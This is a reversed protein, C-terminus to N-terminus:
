YRRTQFRGDISTARTFTMTYSIDGEGGAVIGATAGGWIPGVVPIAFVIGGSDGRGGRANTRVQGTIQDLIANPNTVTGRTLQTRAGAKAFADGQRFVTITATGLPGGGHAINNTLTVNHGTTDVFAADVSGHNSHERVTGVGPIFANMGLSPNHGTTIFGERNGVRARYGLSFLGGFNLTGGPNITSQNTPSISVGMELLEELSYTEPLIWIQSPAEAEVFTIVPSYVVENLFRSIETENYPLLGIVVGNGAPDTGAWQFSEPRSAEGIIDMLYNLYNYSFDVYEIIIDMSRLQSVVLNEDELLTQHNNNVLQLVLNGESNYYIGGIFDPYMTEGLRNKPFLAMINADNQRAQGLNRLFDEDFESISYEESFMDFNESALLTTAIAFTLGLLLMLGIAKKLM